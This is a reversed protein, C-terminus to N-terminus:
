CVKLVQVKLSTTKDLCSDLCARKVSSIATGAFTPLLQAAVTPLALTAVSSACLPLALTPVRQEPAMSCGHAGRRLRHLLRPGATAVDVWRQAIPLARAWCNLGVRVSCRLRRGRPARSRVRKRRQWATREWRRRVARGGGRCVGCLRRKEGGLCCCCSHCRIKADSTRAAAEDCDPPRKGRPGPPRAPQSRPRPPNARAPAAQLRAPLAAQLPPAIPSAAASAGTCSVRWGGTGEPPRHAAPRNM